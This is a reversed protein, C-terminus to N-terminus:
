NYINFRKDLVELYPMWHVQINHQIYILCIWVNIYMRYLSVISSSTKIGFVQISAALSMLGATYAEGEPGPISFM